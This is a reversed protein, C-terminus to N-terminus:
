CIDWGPCTTNIVDRHEICQKGLWRNLHAGAAVQEFSPPEESLIGMYLIHRSNWNYGPCGYGVWSDRLCRYITGKRDIAFHYPIGPWGRRHICYWNIAEIHRVPHTVIPQGAGSHHAMTWRIKKTSRRPYKGNVPLKGVLRVLPPKSNPSRYIPTCSAAIMRAPEQWIDYGAWMWDNLGLCFVAAGLVYADKMLEKNVSQLWAYYGQPTMGPVNRWGGYKGPEKVGFDFGLEGLILNIWESRPLGPWGHEPCGIYVMRYRWLYWRDDMGPWTYAHLLLVAGDKMGQRIAPRYVEWWSMDTPNGVGLNALTIQRGHRRMIRSCEADFEGLRAMADRSSVVPENTLQVHSCPFDGLRMLALTCVRQAEAIPDMAPNNFDPNHSDDPFPRVATRGHSTGHLWAMEKFPQLLVNVAGRWQGIVEPIGGEVKNVHAGILSLM